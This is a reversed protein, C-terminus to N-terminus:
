NAYLSNFRSRSTKRKIRMSRIWPTEFPDTHSWPASRDLLKQLQSEQLDCIPFSSTPQEAKTKCHRRQLLIYIISWKRHWQINEIEPINQLLDTKCSLGVTAPSRSMLLYTLQASRTKSQRKGPKLYQKPIRDKECQQFNPSWIARMERIWCGYM